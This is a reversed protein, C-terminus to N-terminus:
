SSPLYVRPQRRRLSGAPFSRRPAQQPLGLLSAALASLALRAPSSPVAEGLTRGAALAEDVGVVDLPVFLVERVGACRSLAARIEKAPDGPVGGARLRNVIVLPHVDPM